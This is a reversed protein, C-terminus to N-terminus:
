ARLARRAQSPTSSTSEVSIDFKKRDQEGLVEDGVLQADGVRWVPVVRLMSGVDRKEAIKASDLNVQATRATVTMAAPM